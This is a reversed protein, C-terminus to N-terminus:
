QSAVAYVENGWLFCGDFETLVHLLVDEYTLNAVRRKASRTHWLRRFGPFFSPSQPHSRASLLNTQVLHCNLRLGSTFNPQTLIFPPRSLSSTSSHGTISFSPHLGRHHNGTCLLYHLSDS